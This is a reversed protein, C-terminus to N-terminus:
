IFNNNKLWKKLLDFDKTEFVLRNGAGAFYKYIRVNKDFLKPKGHSKRYPDLAVSLLYLDSLRHDMEFNTKYEFCFLSTLRTYSNGKNM